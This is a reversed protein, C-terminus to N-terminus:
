FLFIKISGKFPIRATRDYIVYLLCKPLRTRVVNAWNQQILDITSKRQCVQEIPILVLSSVDNQRVREFLDFPQM